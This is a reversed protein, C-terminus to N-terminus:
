LLTFRLEGNADIFHFKSAWPYWTSSVEDAWSAAGLSKSFKSGLTSKVNSLTNASIFELAVYGATHHDLSGWAM